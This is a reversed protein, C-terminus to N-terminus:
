WLRLLLCLPAGVWVLLLLWAGVAVDTGLRARSWRPGWRDLVVTAARVFRHGFWAGSPHELNKRVGEWVMVATGLGSVKRLLRM